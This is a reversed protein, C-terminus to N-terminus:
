ESRNKELRKVEEEFGTYGSMEDRYKKCFFYNVALLEDLRIRNLMRLLLNYDKKYYRTEEDIVLGLKHNKQNEYLRNMDRVISLIALQRYTSSNLMQISYYLNRSINNVTFCQEAIEAKFDTKLQSFTKEDVLFREGKVLAVSDKLVHIRRSCDPHTKLSDREKQSLGSADAETMKSFISSEEKIWKEKFPYDDFSFVLPLEVPELFRLTDIVDLKQLATQIGSGDYGTQRMFKLAWKDAELENDRNHKRGDFITQKYLKELEQNQRFPQKSIRKLEDNFSPSNIKEIYKKIAKGSHDLYYHALEHGLVYTLEAENDLYTFLGANVAITGDGMSYANPWWDRTFVLRVDLNKLEPNAAKIKDAIKQLYNIAAPSTLSRTSLLLDHVQTLREEYVERYQKENEKPLSSVLQIKKEVSQNYFNRKLVTDDKQFSYVPKLQAICTCSTFCFFLPLFVKKFLSMDISLNGM